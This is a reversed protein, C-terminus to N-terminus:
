EGNALEYFVGKKEMLEAYSGTEVLRGAKLVVIKDFDSALDLRHIVAIVTTNGRCKTRIMEQVQTQSRNDLSATAEDMILIKPEKLLVRALALKQKQGGSLKDGKSGVHFDLGIEMIEKLLNEERLLKTVIDVIRSTDGELDTMLNGYVINDLLTHQFQYQTPCYSIFERNDSEMVPISEGVMMVQASIQCEDIDVKGIDQIFRHRAKVIKEEMSEPIAVMKHKAPIFCLALELLKAADDQNFINQGPNLRDALDAYAEFKDPAIPSAQLFFADDSFDRLLPVTQITLNKGLTLMQDYLDEAKLFDLFIRNAPLNELRFADQSFEGFIINKCITTHRLFRNIDYAEISTALEAARKMGITQRMKLVVPVLPKCREPPIVSNLGIRIIDEALGVSEVMELMAEKCPLESEEEGGKNLMDAKRSYQLNDRITGTFIFAHQAVFGISGSIDAKALSKLDHGDVLINGDVYEYLQGIILALTSKGSGSFGVFAVHENAKIQMSINNLLQVGGAVSYNLGQIDIDGSLSHPKRGDPLLIPGPKIDFSDMVHDYRVKADQYEQYYEILEKWPGYVKEYASLFAVLAGLTFQGNIALYGGYLFLIFPGISQIFSNVLKIGYKFIFLRYMIRSIRHFFGGIKEEELRYSANGHVEHIGSVAENVVNSMSRLVKVRTKNLKNYRKQLIPILFVEIPYISLSILGLKLDLVVMYIAFALFTLVSTIPIALAGGIFSGVANLEATMANIVTGPQTTRFFQLPLQLIHNYLERRIEVLLKQGLYRQMVNILFKMLSAILIAGIYLGCYLFLAEQDKLRIATNIIRKQMELPFINFFISAIIVVFLLAQYLRYRTLIWYFLPRKTIQM